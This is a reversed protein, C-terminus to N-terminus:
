LQMDTMDPSTRCVLGISSLVRKPQTLNALTTQSPLSACLREKTMAAGCVCVSEREGTLFIKECRSPDEWGYAEVRLLCRGDDCQECPKACCLSSRLALSMVVAGPPTM